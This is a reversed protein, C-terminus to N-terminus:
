AVDGGTEQILNHIPNLELGYYNCMDELSCFKNMSCGICEVHLDILMAATLPSRDLLEGVLASSSLM